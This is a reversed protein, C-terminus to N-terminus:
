PLEALAAGVGVAALGVLLVLATIVIDHGRSHRQDPLDLTFVSPNEPTYHVTVERGHSKVPDPLDRTCYALVAEGAHTTFALVPTHSTTLGGDGDDSVDKLVAVIRGPVPTMSTLRAIRRSAEHANVPLFFAASVALPAGSGILAWPWGWDIAAYTVLGAYILFVACSPWGLGRSSELNTTFRFNHLQGPLYRIGIERGTWARDIWDGHEGDNTVTHEQGTAPDRFTVVVPIGGRKSGGHRPETVREIRGKVRVMRQARTVGALSRGYGVLAVTGFVACWLALYENWDM